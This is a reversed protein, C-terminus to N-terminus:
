SCLTKYASFEPLRSVRFSIFFQFAAAPFRAAAKKQIVKNKLLAWWPPLSLSRRAPLDFHIVFPSVVFQVLFQIPLCIQFCVLHDAIQM